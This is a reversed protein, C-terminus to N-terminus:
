TRELILNGHPDATARWGSPVWTTTDYQEVIAPGLIRAGAGLRERDYVNAEVFAGADWVARTGSQASAADGTAVLAVQPAHGGSGTVTVRVTALEIVEDRSAYGYRREHRAHFAQAIAEADGALPVTLDFSQGLYRVDLEVVSRIEAEAVGQARLAAHGEVVL